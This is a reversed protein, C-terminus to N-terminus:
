GGFERDLIDTVFRDISVPYFEFRPGFILATRTNEQRLLDDHVRDLHSRAGDDLNRVEFSGNEIKFNKRRSFAFSFLRGQLGANFTAPDFVDAFRDGLVEASLIFRPSVRINGNVQVAKAPNEDDPSVLIYPLEHYGSIIGTVPRRLIDTADYVERLVDDNAYPNRMM